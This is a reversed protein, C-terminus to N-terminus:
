GAAGDGGVGLVALRAALLGAFRGSWVRNLPSPHPLPHLEFRHPRGDRDALEVALHRDADFRDPSRWFADLRGRVAASEGIGFWLFAERGLTVLRRGHWHRTLLDAVAPKFRAKTRLPWARNGVPKYPVTSAWFFLPGVAHLAQADAPVDDGHLHRHVTRRLLRGAAGTFTEGSQVETRGPDRGFFGVAAQPNGADVIPDLPDRDAARYADLDIGDLGAALRRFADRLAPDLLAIGPPPTGAPPSPPHDAGNPPASM